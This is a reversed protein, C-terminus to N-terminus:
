LIKKGSVKTWHVSEEKMDKKGGRRGGKGTSIVYLPGGPARRIKGKPL